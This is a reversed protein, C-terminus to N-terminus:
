ATVASRRSRRRVITGILVLGVGFLAYSEPEPVPAASLVAVYFGGSSGSTGSVRVEWSGATLTAPSPLFLATGGSPIPASSFSGVLASNLYGDASFGTFLMGPSPAINSILSSFTVPATLSFLFSDAFATNPAFTLAPSVYNGGGTADGLLYVTAKAPGTMFLLGACLIILLNKRM